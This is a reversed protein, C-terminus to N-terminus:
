KNRYKRLAGIRSIKAIEKEITEKLAYTAHSAKLAVPKIDDKLYLKIKDKTYTGPGPSFLKKFKSESDGLM